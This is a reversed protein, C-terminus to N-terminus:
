VPPYHSQWEMAAQLAGGIELVGRDDFRPGIIQLGTPLGDITFGSPVSLVPCQAVNNFPSTMDLGHFRGAEDETDFDSDDLGVPPAPLAMTPCILADHDEFLEALSQWQRTRVFELRKFEVATRRDGSEMLRLLRPDMHSAHDERVDGFLAALFVEWYGFWADVVERTWDLNVETVTAGLEELCTAAHRTNVEIDPDVAFFGLDVSLAISRGEISPTTALNCDTLTTLSQIDRESPGQTADLFLAADEVTRSIAGFHSISDFVTPLIDM